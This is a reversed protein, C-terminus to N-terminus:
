KTSNKSVRCARAWDKTAMHSSIRQLVEEPLDNITMSRGAAQGIKSAKVDEAMQMSSIVHNLMATRHCMSTSCISIKWSYSHCCCSMRM